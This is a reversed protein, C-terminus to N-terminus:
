PRWRAPCGSCRPSIFSRPSPARAEPRRRGRASRAGMVHPALLALDYQPPRPRHPRLRAATGRGAARLVASPLVAAAAARASIPLPANDGEDVVLWLETARGRVRAAADLAPALRGSTRTCGRRRRRSRRSGRSRAPESRAPPDVGLQVQAPLRARRDRCAADVAAPRREPLASAISPGVADPM